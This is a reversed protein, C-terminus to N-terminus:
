VPLSLDLDINSLSVCSAQLLYMLLLWLLENWFYFLHIEQLALKNPYFIFVIYAALDFSAEIWPMGHTDYESLVLM